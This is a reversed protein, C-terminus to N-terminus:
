ARVTLVVGACFSSWAHLDDLSVTGLGNKVDILNHHGDGLGIFGGIFLYAQGRKLDLPNGLMHFDGALFHAAARRHLLNLVQHFLGDHGM